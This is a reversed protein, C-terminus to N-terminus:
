LYGVVTPLKKITQFLGIEMKQQYKGSFVLLPLWQLNILLNIPFM